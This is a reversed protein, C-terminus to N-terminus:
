CIFGIYCLYTVVFFTRASTLHKKWKKRNYVKEQWEEGSVIIRDDRVEDQWRNRPRGRLRKTELNMYLVRKPIRNEEMRQVHGFWCLRHLRITETITPNKVIAYIEKNTLVLAKKRFFHKPTSEIQSLFIV